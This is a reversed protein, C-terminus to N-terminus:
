ASRRAYDNTITAMLQEPSNDPSLLVHQFGNKKALVQMASTTVVLNAQTLFNCNQTQLCRLLHCFGNQSHITIYDYDTGQTQITEAWQTENVPKTSLHPHPM